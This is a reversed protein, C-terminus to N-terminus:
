TTGRRNQQMTTCVQATRRKDSQQAQTSTTQQLWPVRSTTRLNSPPQHYFTTMQPRKEERNPNKQQMGRYHSDILKILTPRDSETQDKTTKKKGKKGSRLDM